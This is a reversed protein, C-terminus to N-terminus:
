CTIVNTTREDPVGLAELIRHVYAVAEEPSVWRHCRKREDM